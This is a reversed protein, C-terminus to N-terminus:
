LITVLESINLDVDSAATATTTLDTTAATTTLDTSADDATKEVNQMRRQSTSALWVNKAIVAASFRISKQETTTVTLFDTEM